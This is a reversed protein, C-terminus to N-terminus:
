DEDDDWTCKTGGRAALEAADKQKHLEAAEDYRKKLALLRRRPEECNRDMDSAPFLQRLQALKTTRDYHGPIHNKDVRNRADEVLRFLNETLRTLAKRAFMRSVFEEGSYAMFREVEDIYQWFRETVNEESLEGSGVCFRRGIARMKVYGPDEACTREYSPARRKVLERREEDAETAALRKMPRRRWEGPEAM